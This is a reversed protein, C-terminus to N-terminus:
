LKISFRNRMKELTEKPVSHVDDNGHRNEVIVSFVKYEYKEALSLYPKLEKNTTTTNAIIVDKGVEMSEKCKNRCWEHAERIKLSDWIYEGDENIFFDDASCITINNELMNAYNTVYEAFSSKGSGPIGRIITLTKM